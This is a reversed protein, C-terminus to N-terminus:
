SIEPLLILRGTTVPEPGDTMKLGLDAAIELVTGQRTGATDGVGSEIKVERGLVLSSERYAELLSGLGYETLELFRIRVADLVANLVTVLGTEPLDCHDSLCTVGPTFPTPPVDPAVAVNLGIGLVASRIRGDQSRASTLVGGMKRGDMLVDNVWKIGLGRPRPQVSSQFLSAMADMVAVAPLMTLALGSEAAPLDCRLGLTLHLNGALASWARNEQGHFGGGSGALCVVHAPLDKHDAIVQRLVDYQSRGVRQVLHFSSWFSEPCGQPWDLSVQPLRNEGFLSRGLDRFFPGGPTAKEWTQLAQLSAPIFGELARHFELNHEVFLM